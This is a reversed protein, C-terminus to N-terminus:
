SQAEDDVYIDKQDRSSARSGPHKPEVRSEIKGLCLVSQCEFSVPLIEGLIDKSPM